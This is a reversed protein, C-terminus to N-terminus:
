LMMSSYRVMEGRVLAVSLGKWWIQAMKRSMVLMTKTMRRRIAMMEWSVPMPREFKLMLFSRGLITRVAM